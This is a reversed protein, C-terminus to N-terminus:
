VGFDYRGLMFVVSVGWIFLWATVTYPWRRFQLCPVLLLVVALVVFAPASLAMPWGVASGSPAFVLWRLVLGGLVPVFCALLADASEWPMHVAQLAQGVEAAGFKEAAKLLAADEDLGTARADAVADELHGRIEEILEWETAKSLNMEASIATLVTDLTTSTTM